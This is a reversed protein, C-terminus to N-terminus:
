EAVTGYISLLNGDPDHFAAAYAVYGPECHVERLENVWPIDREKLRSYAGQVDPTHFVIETRTLPTQEAGPRDHLAITLAGADLEIWGPSQSKVSLGLTDRYFPLLAEGDKVYMIVYEVQGLQLQATM